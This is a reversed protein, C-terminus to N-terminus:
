VDVDLDVWRKQVLLGQDVQEMFFHAVGMPGQIFFRQVCGDVHGGCCCHQDLEVVCGLFLTAGHADGERAVEGDADVAFGGPDDTRWGM